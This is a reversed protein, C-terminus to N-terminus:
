KENVYDAVPIAGWSRAMKPVGSATATALVALLLQKIADQIEPDDWFFYLAGVMMLGVFAVELMHPLTKSLATKFDDM